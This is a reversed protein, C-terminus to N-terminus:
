TPWAASASAGAACRSSSCRADLRAKPSGPYDIVPANVELVAVAGIAKAARIGEGGFNYYREIVVDPASRTPSRASRRPGCCACSARGLPPALAHWRARGDPFPGPGQTALVHVEHGLAALGEAVATVHM